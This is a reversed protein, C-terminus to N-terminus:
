GLVILLAGAMVLLAALADKGSPRRRALGLWGLGDCLAGFLLQGLLLLALTGAMGLSSNLCLAALVVTLAGPLGGLWAWPPAAEPTPPRPSLWWLLAAVLTGVGHALWSGLWPDTARALAGNQAIMLALLLGAAFAALAGLTQGLTQGLAPRGPGRDVLPPIM